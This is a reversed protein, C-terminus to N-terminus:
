GFVEEVDREEGFWEDPRECADVGHRGHDYVWILVKNTECGYDLDRELELWCVGFWGRPDRPHDDLVSFNVCNGCLRDCMGAMRPNM